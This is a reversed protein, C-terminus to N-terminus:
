LYDIL